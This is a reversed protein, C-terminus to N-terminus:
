KGTVEGGGVLEVFRAVLRDSTRPPAPAARDVIEVEARGDVTALLEAEATALDRSPAFRYNLNVVFRDPVVNRANETSAQTATWVDHYTVGDVTVERAPREHLEALFSGAKTLANEGTWPRASHAARGTFLLLAHLGGLCGAQVELDTPELIIALALDHLWPVEALVTRLENHEDPGEEAAYLVLVLDYPSSGALDARLREGVAIGGKMDSAGRGVIVGSEVRPERDDETAPVTDLHGVLAIAPRGSPEGVVVSNGVRTVRDSGYTAAVHDAIASEDGTVSPIRLLELTRATLAEADAM